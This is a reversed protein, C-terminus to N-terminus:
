GVAAPNGTTQDVILNSIIRPRSDIVNGTPQAYSTGEEGERLVRTTLRPFIQDAAGFREQGQAIHNFSGDVTRLGFPLRSEQVQKPGPGFLQGGAAHAEAIEIQRFIFRLDGADLVFGVAEAGGQARVVPGPAPGGATSLILVMAAVIARHKRGRNGRCTLRDPLTM